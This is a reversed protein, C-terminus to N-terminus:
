LQPGKIEVETLTIHDGGGEVPLRQGTALLYMGAILRYRGSSLDRDIRLEHDDLVIENPDWFSTPLRGLAPQSDSQAVLRGDPSLLQVFVTYDETPTVAATWYLRLCLLTSSAGNEWQQDFGLLDIAEGLRKRMRVSPSVERLGTSAVKIYGLHVTDKRAGGDKVPLRNLTGRDYVGLVASYKGPPMRGEVKIKYNVIFIDGTRWEPAPFASTDHQAWMSGKHDLLHAFTVYEKSPADRLVRWIAAITLQGGQDVRQGLRYALLQIEDGLNKSTKTFSPDGLLRDVTARVQAPTLRYALFMPTGDAFYSREVLAEQPMYSELQDSLASSPFAYLSSKASEPSLVMAYNGNFWRVYPYIRPAIHALTPHPYYDSSVFIQEQEPRAPQSWAHQNLYRATALMDAMNQRAAEVSGAWTVFYDSFTNLGELLLLASALAVFTSRVRRQRAAPARAAAWDWLKVLGLAPVLFLAPVLGMSRLTYQGEDVSLLSPLLMVAIWALCMAEAARGRFAGKLIALLGIYFMLAAGGVFIPRGPINHKWLENGRLTFSSLLSALNSLLVQFPDDKVVSPGFVFVQNVRPLFTGPHTAFYFALPAAVALAVLLYVVLGIRIGAPPRIRFALWWIALLVLVGPFLRAGLYTYITSGLAAGAAGWLLLSGSRAAKWLLLIALGEVPPQTIVRYGERSLMVQWFSLGQLGAGLLGVRRDFLERGLLYAVVVTAIGVLASTIRLPLIGQEGGMLWMAIAALYIYLPEQGLYAPFFIPRQVGRYVESAMIGMLAEDHHWGTPISDLWLFRLIASAVLILGLLGLETRRSM